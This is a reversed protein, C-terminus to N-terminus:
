NQELIRQWPLLARCPEALSFNLHCRPIAQARFYPIPAFLACNGKVRVSNYLKLNGM